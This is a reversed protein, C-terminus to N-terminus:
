DIVVGHHFPSVAGRMKLKPGLHLATTLKVGRSSYVRSFLGWYGSSVLISLGLAQRYTTAFLFFGTMTGAPFQVGVKWGM